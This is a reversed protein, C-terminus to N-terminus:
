LARKGLAHTGTAGANAAEERRGAGPRQDGLSLLSADDVAPGVNEFRRQTGVIGEDLRPFAVVHTIENVPSRRAVEIGHHGGGRSAGDGLDLVEHRRALDLAIVDMRRSDEHLSDKLAGTVAFADLLPRRSISLRSRMM